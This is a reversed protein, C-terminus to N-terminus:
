FASSVGRLPLGALREDDSDELAKALAALQAPEMDGMLNFFALEEDDVMMIAVGLLRNDLNRTLIHVRSDPEAVQVVSEWDQAELRRAALSLARAMTERDAEPGLEYVQVQLGDLARLLAQTQPDDDVFRAAFGFIRGGLSLYTDPTLGPEHLREFQAFGPNGTPATIGCGSILLLLPLLLLARKV